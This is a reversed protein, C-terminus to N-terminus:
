DDAKESTTDTGFQVRVNAGRERFRLRLFPRASRRKAEEVFYVLALIQTTAAMGNRKWYYGTAVSGIGKFSSCLRKPNAARAKIM